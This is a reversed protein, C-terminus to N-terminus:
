GKLRVRIGVVFRIANTDEGEKLARRYDVQGVASIKDNIPAAVGGGFQVGFDTRSSDGISDHAGGVAVQVFPTAKPNSSRSCRIGGGFAAISETVGGDSRRSWDFQGIGSVVGSIPASVDVNFGMPFNNSNGCCSTRQFQYGFSVDQAAAPWTAGVALVAGLIMTRISIKM